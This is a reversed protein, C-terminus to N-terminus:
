LSLAKRGLGCRWLMAVRPPPMRGSLVPLSLLEAHGGVRRVLAPWGLGCVPAHSNGPSWPYVGSQALPDRPPGTRPLGRSTSRSWTWSPSKCRSRTQPVSPELVCARRPWNERVCIALPM